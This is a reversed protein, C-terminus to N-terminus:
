DGGVTSFVQALARFLIYFYAHACSFRSFSCMHVCNFILGIIRLLYVCKLLAHSMRSVTELMNRSHIVALSINPQTLTPGGAGSIAAGLSRDLRIM